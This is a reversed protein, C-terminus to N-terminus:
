GERAPHIVVAPDDKGRAEIWGAVFAGPVAGLARPAEALSVILTYGIGMNFTRYREELRLDGRKVLDRMLPPVRWRTQEFIAKCGAPLARPVNDILGGGTIHAMAKIRAVRRIAEVERLYSPHPALLADAYTVHDGGPVHSNWEETPVLARALSYGNTHLGVSPFAIIADGAAVSDVPPIQDLDVVGVITGALDFEGDGYMGPM